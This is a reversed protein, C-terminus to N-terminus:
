EETPNEQSIWGWDHGEAPVLIRLHQLLPAWRELHEKISEGLTEEDDQDLNYAMWSGDPFVTLYCDWDVRQSEPFSELMVLPRPLFVPATHGNGYLFHNRTVLFNELAMFSSEPNFKERLLRVNELDDRYPDTYEGPLVLQYYDFRNADTGLRDSWEQPPPPQDVLFREFSELLEKLLPTWSADEKKAQSLMEAFLDMRAEPSPFPIEEPPLDSFSLSM